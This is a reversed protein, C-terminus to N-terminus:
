EVISFTHITKHYYIQEPKLIVSDAFEPMNIANPIRQTELCIGSHKKCEKGFSFVGEMFNGTYIQICPETTKVTMLRGTKKSYLEACKHLQQPNNVNYDTIFFNNDVDGFDKFIRSINIFESSSFPTEDMTLIVGTLLGDEDVPCYQDAFLKLELNDIVTDLGSLNWYAHNTINIITTKDTTAIFEWAIKMPSIYFITSITLTGPFNEEGDPSTYQFELKVTDNIIDDKVLKWIKNNFGEHGGHLCHKNNNNIFLSYDKGELTFKGNAIRNAVQRVVAGLYAGHKKFDEVRNQGFAIDSVKGDRDPVKVSVLTAGYNSIRVEFGSELDTITLLEIEQDKVMGWNKKTLKMFKVQDYKIEM